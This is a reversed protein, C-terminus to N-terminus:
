AIRAASAAGVTTGTPTGGLAARVAGPDTGNVIAVDCGARAAVLAARLKPVMGGQATGDAILKEAEDATLSEMLEGRRQVGPVDTLLLLRAGRAAAIAGAAEDANVNLLEDGAGRAIPAVIPVHGDGALAELLATNVRSIRGVEGLRADFREAVLLDGDAGGLGIASVGAAVFRAVLRANVLGRLVAVAVDLTAADTVRLGDVTAPEHGLRRSWDGVENGGGHVIVWGPAAAEILVSLADAHAGAVGGIKITLTQGKV